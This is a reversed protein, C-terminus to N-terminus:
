WLKNLGLFTGIVVGVAIILKSLWQIFISVKGVTTYADIVPKVTEKWELDKEIYEDIKKDLNRIKGNVYKETAREVARDIEKLIKDFDQEM